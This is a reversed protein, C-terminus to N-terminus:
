VNLYHMLSEYNSQIDNIDYQESHVEVITYNLREFTAVAAQLQQKNTKLTILLLDTEPIPNVMTSLIIINESECIRSIQSLSYNHAQISLVIIGGQESVMLGQAVYQLLKDTTICGLYNNHTDTVPICSLQHKNLLQLAEYIHQTDLVKIPMYQSNAKTFQLSTDEWDLLENESVIGILKNDAILPLHVLHYEDMLDLAKDATDYVSLAPVISSILQECQM